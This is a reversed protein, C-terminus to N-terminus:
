TEGAENQAHHRPASRSIGCFEYEPHKATLLLLAKQRAEFFKPEAVQRRRHRRRLIVIEGVPDPADRDLVHILGIALGPDAIRRRAPDPLARRDAAHGTFHRARHQAPPVGVVANREAVGIETEDAGLLTDVALVSQLALVEFVIM